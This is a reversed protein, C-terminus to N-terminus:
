KLKGDSRVKSQSSFELLIFPQQLIFDVNTNKKILDTFPATKSWPDKLWGVLQLRLM